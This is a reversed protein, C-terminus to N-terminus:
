LYEKKYGNNDTYYIVEIGVDQLMKFCSGCPRSSGLIGERTERYIYAHSGKLDDPHVNLIASFEAHITKFQDPSRTHTKLSNMGVSIVRNKKVIVCGLKFKNHSSKEAVNKALKFFKQKM